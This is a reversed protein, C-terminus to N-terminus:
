IRQPEDCALEISGYARQRTTCERRYGGVTRCTSASVYAGRNSRHITKSTHAIKADMLMLGDKAMRDPIKRAVAERGSCSKESDYHFVDIKM